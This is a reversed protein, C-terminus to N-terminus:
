PLRMQFTLERAEKAMRRSDCSVEVGRLTRWPVEVARGSVDLPVYPPECLGRMVVPPSRLFRSSTRLRGEDGSEQEQESVELRGGRACCDHREHGLLVPFLM